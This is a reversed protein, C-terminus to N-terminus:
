GRGTYRKHTDIATDVAQEIDKFLTQALPEIAQMQRESVSTPRVLRGMQLFEALRTKLEGVTEPMSVIREAKPTGPLYLEIRGAGDILMDHYDAKILAALAELHLDRPADRGILNSGEGAIAVIDALTDDRHREITTGIADLVRNFMRGTMPTGDRKSTLRGKKGGNM